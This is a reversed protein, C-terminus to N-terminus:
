PGPTSRGATTSIRTLGEPRLQGYPPSLAPRAVAALRWPCRSDWDYQWLQAASPFGPAPGYTSTKVSDWKASGDAFWTHYFQDVPQHRWFKGMNSLYVKGLPNVGHLCTTPRGRRQQHGRQQPRQPQLHRTPLCAAPWPKSAMAAGLHLRDPLRPLPRAQGQHRGAPTTTASGCSSTATRSPAPWAPHHRPPSRRLAAAPAHHRVLLALAVLSAFM